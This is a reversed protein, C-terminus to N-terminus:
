SELNWVTYTVPMRIFFTTHVTTVSPPPCSTSFPTGEWVRLCIAFEKIYVVVSAGGVPAVRSHSLPCPIVCDLDTGRERDTFSDQNTKTKTTAGTGAGEDKKVLRLGWM